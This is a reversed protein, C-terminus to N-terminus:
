RLWAQYRNDRQQEAQKRTPWYDTDVLTKLTRAHWVFGYWGQETHEIDTRHDPNLTM